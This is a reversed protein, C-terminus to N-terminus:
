QRGEPKGGVASHDDDTARGGTYRCLLDVHVGVEFGRAALYALAPQLEGPLLFEAGEQSLEFSPCGCPCSYSDLGTCRPKGRSTAARHEAANHGCSCTLWRGTDADTATVALRGPDLVASRGSSGPGTAGELVVLM